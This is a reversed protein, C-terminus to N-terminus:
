WEVRPWEKLNTTGSDRTFQRLWKKATRTILIHFLKGSSMTDTVWKDAKVALSLFIYDLRSKLQYLM